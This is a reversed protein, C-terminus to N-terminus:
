WSFNKVSFLHICLNKEHHFLLCLFKFHNIFMCQRTIIIFNYISKSLDPLLRLTDDESELAEDASGTLCINFWDGRRLDGLFCISGLLSCCGEGNFCFCDRVWPWDFLFCTSDRLSTCGEGNLWCCDRDWGDRLVPNSWWSLEPSESISSSSGWNCVLFSACLWDFLDLPYGM